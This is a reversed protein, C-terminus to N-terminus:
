AQGHHPEEGNINNNLDDRVGNGGKHAECAQLLLRRWVLVRLDHFRLRPLGVHECCAYWEQLFHESSFEEGIDDPFVLDLVQRVTDVNRNQEKQRLAYNRLVQVVDEHLSHHRVHSKTKSNLVHIEGIKLDVESWRLRRLEDRRLGIALALLVMAELHHERQVKPLNQKMCSEKM